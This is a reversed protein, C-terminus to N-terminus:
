GPVCRFLFVFVGGIFLYDLISYARACAYARRQAQTCVAIGEKNLTLKRKKTNELIM